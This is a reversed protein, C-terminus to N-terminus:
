LLLIEQEVQNVVVTAEVVALVEQLEMLMQELEVVVELQLLQQFFQIIVVVVQQLDL